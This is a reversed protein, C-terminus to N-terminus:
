MISVEKEDSGGGADGGGMVAEEGGVCVKGRAEGRRV